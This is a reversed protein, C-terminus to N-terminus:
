PWLSEPNQMQRLSELGQPTPEPATWSTHTGYCTIIPALPNRRSAIEDFIIDAIDAGREVQQPAPVGPMNLWPELASSIWVRRCFSKLKLGKEYWECFKGNDPFLVLTKGKVAQLAHWPDNLNESTPNLGGCGGCAIAVYTDGCGVNALLAHVALATKESEFLWVEPTDERIRHSGFFCQRLEFGDAYGKEKHIWNIRGNRHGDPDYGMSKGTRIRGNWDIQFFEAGAFGRSTGVGYRDFAEELCSDPVYGLFLRKLALFLPNKRVPQSHSADFRELPIYSPERRATAVLVPKRFRPQSGSLSPHLARQDRFFEKPTYHYGCNDARDCRGCSDDIKRGTEDVYLVFRRKGCRPCVYKKSSKDLSIM